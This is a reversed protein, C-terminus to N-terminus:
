NLNLLVASRPRDSEWAFRSHARGLDYIVSTHDYRSHAYAAACGRGFEVQLQTSRPLTRM